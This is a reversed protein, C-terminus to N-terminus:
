SHAAIPPKQGGRGALVGAHRSVAEAVRERDACRLGPWVPLSLVERSMAEAVPLSDRYGLERYYPQQHLPLPYYVANGIGEKALRAQLIDRGEPVRVTYQHYVHMAGAAESPTIVGSLHAGYHRANARRKRTFSPLRGLQTLGIAASIDTMRFNYGLETHHYPRAAGHSRLSRLRHAIQPDNTTVMGGEGTTMNKTPYFSFCGTGFSGVRRGQWEAGHAQCADEIIALGHSEAIESIRTM